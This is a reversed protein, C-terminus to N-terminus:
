ATARSQFESCTAGKGLSHGVIMVIDDQSCQPEPLRRDLEAFLKQRHTDDGLYLCIDALVKTAPHIIRFLLILVVVAIVLYAVTWLANPVFMGSNPDRDFIEKSIFFHAVYMPFGSWMLAAAYLFFVAPLVLAIRVWITSLPAVFGILLLNIVYLGLRRVSIRVATTFPSTKSRNLKAYGSFQVIV